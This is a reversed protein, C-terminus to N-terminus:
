YQLSIFRSWVKETSVSTEDIGLRYRVMGVDDESIAEFLLALDRELAAPVPSSRRSASASTPKSGESQTPSESTLAAVSLPSSRAGLVTVSAFLDDEGESGSAFLDLQAAKKKPTRPSTANAIQPPIFNLLKPQQVPDRSLISSGQMTQSRASRPSVVGVAGTNDASGPM